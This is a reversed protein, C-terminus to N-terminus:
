IYIKFTILVTGLQMYHLTYKLQEVSLRLKMLHKVCKVQNIFSDNALSDV